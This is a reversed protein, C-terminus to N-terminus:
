MVRCYFHSVACDGLLPHLNDKCNLNVRSPPYGYGLLKKEMRGKLCKVLLYSLHKTILCTEARFPGVHLKMQVYFVTRFCSAM